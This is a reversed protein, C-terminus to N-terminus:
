AKKLEESICMCFRLAVFPNFLITMSNKKWFDLGFTKWMTPKIYIIKKQGEELKMADVIAKVYVENEKKELARYVAEADTELLGFEKLM